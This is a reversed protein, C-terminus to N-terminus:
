KRDRQTNGPAKAALTVAKITPRGAPLTLDVAGSEGRSRPHASLVLDETTDATYDRLTRSSDPNVTSLAIQVQAGAELEVSVEVGLFRKPKLTDFLQRRGQIVGRIDYSGLSGGPAGYEDQNGRHAVYLGGLTTLYHLEQRGNYDLVLMAAIDFDGPYSDISEWEGFPADADVSLFNFVLVRNNVESDDLPVALYYRNDHFAAVARDAFAWNIREIIDHIHASLPQEATLVNLQDVYSVLQVGKDSLWAIRKDCAVVSRRAVCGALGTVEEVGDISLSSVNRSVVHGSKRYLILIRTRALPHAALLWDNGGQKIKAQGLQTDFDNDVGFGSLIFEDRAYPLLLQRNFALAWDAPPMRIHGTSPMTGTTVYLFDNAQNRDWYLVPRVQYCTGPTAAPTAPTPAGINYTFTAAGTKTIQYVGRYDEASQNPLRVWDGTELNHDTATTVTVTAGSRTIGSVTLVPGAARGRFLYVKDLYPELHATDDDGVTEGAPYDIAAIASGQNYAYAKAGTAILVHETNDDDAYTCAARMRDAAIEYLRLGKAVVITGTAPTAPTAAGIDFTFTKAGTVTIEWDGNYDAQSAGELGVVDGTTYGHDPTTTVTVTSGSRTVSAVALETPLDFDLVAPVQSLVLDNSLAVAGARPQATTRQMRMNEAYRAIGAPLTTPQPRSRFGRWDADGALAPEPDFTDTNPM